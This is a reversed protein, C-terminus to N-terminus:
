PGLAEVVLAVLVWITLQPPGFLLVEVKGEQEEGMVVLAVMGMQALFTLGVVVEEGTEAQGEPELMVQTVQREPRDVQGEPEELAEPTIKVFYQLPKVQTGLTALIVLRVLTVLPELLDPKVSMEQQDQEGLTGVMLTLTEQTEEQGELPPHYFM